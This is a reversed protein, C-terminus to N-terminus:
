GTFGLFVNYNHSHNFLNLPLNNTVQQNSDSMQLTEEDSAPDMTSDMENDNQGAFLDNLPIDDNEEWRHFVPKWSKEINEATVNEWASHILKFAIRFDLSKMVTLIPNKKSERVVHAALSKKYTRKVKEIIGQDM